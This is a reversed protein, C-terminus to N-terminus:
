LSFGELDADPCPQALPLLKPTDPLLCILLIGEQLLYVLSYDM